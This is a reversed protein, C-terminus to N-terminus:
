DGGLRWLEKSVEMAFQFAMGAATEDLTGSAIKMRSVSVYLELLQPLTEMGSGICDIASMIDTRQKVTITGYLKDSFKDLAACLVARPKVNRPGGNLDSLMRALEMAGDRVLRQREFNTLPM